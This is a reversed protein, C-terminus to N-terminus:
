AGLIGVQKLVTIIQAVADSTSLLTASVGATYNNQVSGGTPTGWGTSQAPPSAGNVGLPGSFKVTVAAVGTRTVTAWDNGATFADNIVRFHLANSSDAFSDWAKADTGGASNIWGLEASNGGNLFIGTVASSIAVNSNDLFGGSHIHKGTWTPVIAQSLLPAADSRMFTTAVGNVATLGVSATPNAAAPIVQDGTNTGGVTASASLALTHGSITTTGASVTLGGGFTHLGTWTPVIAVSLLPAADSRMFTTATGNVAALGVSVSPNAGAPIAQDGTNTGSLSANATLVLTHANLTFAGSGVTLGANFTHLGTWTPTIAQDIPPAGDSRMATLLSGPVATLGVKATPTALGTVGGGSGSAQLTNTNPNFTWTIGGGDAFILCRATALFNGTLQVNAM